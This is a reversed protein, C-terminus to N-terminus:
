EEGDDELKISIGAQQFELPKTEITYASPSANTVKAVDGMGYAELVDNLTAILTEKNFDRMSMGVYGRTAEVLQDQIAEMMLTREDDLRETADKVLCDECRCETTCEIM